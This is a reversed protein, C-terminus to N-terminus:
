PSDSLTEQGLRQNAEHMKKVQALATQILPSLEQHTEAVKAFHVAYKSDTKTSYYILEAKDEQILKTLPSGESIPERVIRDVVEFVREREAGPQSLLLAKGFFDTLAMHVKEVEPQVATAANLLAAEAERLTPEATVLQTLEGEEAQTRVAKSTLEHFRQISEPLLPVVAADLFPSLSKGSPLLKKESQPESLGFFARVQDGVSRANGRESEGPSVHPKQTWVILALVAATSAAVGWFRKSRFAQVLRAKLELLIM